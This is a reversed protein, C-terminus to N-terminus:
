RRRRKIRASRSRAVKVIIVILIILLLIPVIIMGAYLFYYKLGLNVFEDSYLEVQTLQQNGYMIKATALLENKGFPAKVSKFEEDTVLKLEKEYGNPLVFKKDSGIILTTQKKDSPGRKIDVTLEEFSLSDIEVPQFSKEIWSYIDKQEASVPSGKDAKLTILIIRMNDTQAYTALCQGAPTTTGTKIGSVSEISNLLKNTNYIKREKQKNTAKLTYSYTNVIERFKECGNMEFMAYKSLIYLDKATTYQDEDHLGTSNTFNTNKLGLESAKANMKEVFAAESGDGFHRALMKAADAGSPLLLCYLLDNVDMEENKTILATSAGASFVENIISQTLTIKTSEMEEVSISEFVIVASMIKVLSAPYMKKDANRNYLVTDDDISAESTGIEVALISESTIEPFGEDYDLELAFATSFSSVILFVLVFTLVNFIKKM